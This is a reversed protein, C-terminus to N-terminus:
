TQPTKPWEARYFETRPEQWVVRQLVSAWCLQELAVWSLELQVEAMLFADPQLAAWAAVTQKLCALRYEPLAVVEM